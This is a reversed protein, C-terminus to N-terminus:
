FLMVNASETLLSALEHDNIWQVGPLLDVETLGRKEASSQHVYLAARPEPKNLATRLADGLNTFPTEESVQGTKLVYVGDDTFVASTAFGNAVAGNIHRIAEAAQIVGYPAHRIVMCVSKAM